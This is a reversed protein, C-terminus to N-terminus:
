ERYIHRVESKDLVIPLKKPRKHYPIYEILYKKTLTVNFLFRVACVHINYTSWTYGCDGKLYHQFHNIDSLTINAPPKDNCFSILKQAGRVYNKITNERFGRIRMDMIMKDKIKGM